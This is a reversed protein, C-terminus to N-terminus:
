YRRHRLHRVRYTQRYLRGHHRFYRTRYHVRTRRHRNQRRYHRHTQSPSNSIGVTETIVSESFGTTMAQTSPVAFMLATALFTLIVLKKM